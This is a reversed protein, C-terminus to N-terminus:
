KSKSKQIEGSKSKQEKKSEVVIEITQQVKSDPLFMQVLMGFAMAAGKQNRAWRYMLCFFGLVVTFGFCVLLSLFDDCSIQM